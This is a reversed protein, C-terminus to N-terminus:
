SYKVKLGPSLLDYIANLLQSNLDSQSNDASKPKKKSEKSDPSATADPMPNATLDTSSPAAQNTINKIDTSM